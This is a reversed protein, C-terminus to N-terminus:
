SVTFSGTSKAGATTYLSWKGAKLTVTVSQTGVKSVGSVTIAPHGTEKLIFGRKASKDSVTLKYKGAKLKTVLHGKFVLTLKGAAAVTGALTGALSSTSGAATGGTQTTGSSSGNSTSGSTSGSSSGGSSSGGSSTGGTTSGGAATGTTQFFGYMFDPHNDCVFKYTTGPLFNVTWSATQSQDISTADDVGTGTLHFDHIDADDVVQITYTGPPITPVVRDQNGVVSGDDFTLGISDDEHVYAHMTPSVAASSGGVGLKLAALAVLVTVGAFITIIRTRRDSSIRSLSM